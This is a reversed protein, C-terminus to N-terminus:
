LLEAGSKKRGDVESGAVVAVGEVVTAEERDAGVVGYGGVSTTGEGDAGVVDEGGVDSSCTPFAEGRRDESRPVQSIRVRGRRLIRSSPSTSSKLKSLTM